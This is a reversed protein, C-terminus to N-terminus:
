PTVGIRTLHLMQPPDIGNDAAQVNAAAPGGGNVSITPDTVLDRVLRDGSADTSSMAVRIIEDIRLTDDWEQEPDAFGSARSPGLTNSLALIAAAVIAVAPGGSHVSDGVTPDTAPATEITLETKGGADAFATCALEVPLVVGTMLIQIRPNTGATIAAKLDAPALTNLKIKYPTGLTVTDVTWTGVSSDWDFPKGIAPVIRLRVACGAGAPMSPARAARGEMAVLRVLDFAALVAALQDSTAARTTGSGAQTCVVLVTGTGDHRPYPYAEDIGAVGRAWSRWDNSAGGKPPLQLRSLIRRLLAENSEGDTGGTLAFGHGDDSALPVDGVNGAPPTVWRLSSGTALNGAAGATVASFSGTMTDTGPPVGPISVGATLKFVTKGDPGLLQTNIAYVTGNTGTITGTGGTAITAVLRGLGGAGNSLGLLEAAQDLAATSSDDSPPWEASADAVSAKTSWLVIALARAWKGHYSDPTLPEDPFEVQIWGQVLLLCEDFTEITIAM